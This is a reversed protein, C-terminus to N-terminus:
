LKAGKKENCACCMMQYNSIKNGGKKSKPIIHDITMLIDDCYLDLHYGNNKFLKYIKGVKGCNVCTYGIKEHIMARRLSVYIGNYLFYHKEKKGKIIPNKIKNKIYDISFFDLVEKRDKM